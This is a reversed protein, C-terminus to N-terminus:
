IKYLAVTVSDDNAVAYGAVWEKSELLQAMKKVDELDRITLEQIEKTAACLKGYSNLSEIKEM